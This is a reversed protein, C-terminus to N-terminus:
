PDVLTVGLEKKIATRTTKKISLGLVQRLGLAQTGQLNECFLNLLLLNLGTIVDRERSSWKGVSAKDNIWLRIDGLAETMRFCKASGHVAKSLTSYESKLLDLGTLNIPRSFISPHSEFYTMLESFGLKHQGLTWKTLEVPHDKYYLAFLVNEISSRLAKLAQRFSGSRALCHSILLDNQAEFFFASADENMKEELLSTRWAQISSIRVFSSAFFDRKSSLGIMATSFDAPWQAEFATFNQEIEEALSSSM